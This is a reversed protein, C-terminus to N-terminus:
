GPLSPSGLPLTIALRDAADSTGLLPSWAESFPAAAGGATEPSEIWGNCQM